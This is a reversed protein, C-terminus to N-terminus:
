WHLYASFAAGRAAKWDTPNVGAAHVKILVQASNIDIVPKPLDVVVHPEHQIVRIGSMLEPAAKTPLTQEGPTTGATTPPVQTSM